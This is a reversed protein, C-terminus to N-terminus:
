FNTLVTFNQLMVNFFKFLNLYSVTIKLGEYDNKFLEDIRMM